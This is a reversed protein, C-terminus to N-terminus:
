VSGDAKAPGLGGRSGKGEVIDRRTDLLSSEVFNLLAVDLDDTMGWGYSGLIIDWGEREPDDSGHEEDQYDERGMM